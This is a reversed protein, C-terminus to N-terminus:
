LIPLYTGPPTRPLREELEQIDSLELNLSGAAANDRVPAAQAAKPITFVDPHRTVFALAVQYVSVDHRGAVEHLVQARADGPGPLRGHGFPSYAVTAIGRERCWPIVENEATRELASYYVQNCVIGGLGVSQELERLDSVDFNSVGYARIKGDRALNEMAGFTDELAHSGPWHLLYLDLYDTALARLSRECATVTGDRSANGPLVKSVVYVEERRGAIAEGVVAESRGSGYMEATDIHTMGLEMGLRLMEAAAPADELYWTGQGVVPLAINTGALPATRM